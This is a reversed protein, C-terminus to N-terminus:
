LIKNLDIEYGAAKLEKALSFKWADNEDIPVYVVGSLDSPLEVGKAYLPCVRERGLKGIFYGLELIVNQRARKKLDSASKAKGEDDATLLVVAFGVNSHAEFKEIVTKGANAQEHLIIPNLGLKELTRAVSVKIENDHGHVIFVNSTNTEIRHGTNANSASVESNLLPTKNIMQKLSNLKNKVEQKFESIREALSRPESSIFWGTNVLDYDHKYENDPNNFSQKLLESNYDDWNSFDDKAKSLQEANQVLRDYIEEGIQVRDNLEEIFIQKDKKLLSSPRTQNSASSTKKAMFSNILFTIYLIRLMNQKSAGYALPTVGRLM